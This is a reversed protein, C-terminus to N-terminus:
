WEQRLRLHLKGEALGGGVPLGLDLGVLGLRSELNLGAGYGWHTDAAGRWADYGFDAFLHFRSRPTLHYRYETSVRGTRSGAFQDEAYGRPGEAGGIFSLEYFPIDGHNARLEHYDGEVALV